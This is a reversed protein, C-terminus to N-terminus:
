FLVVFGHQQNLVFQFEHHKILLISQRHYLSLYLRTQKWSSCWEDPPLADRLNSLNELPNQQSMQFPKIEKYTRTQRPQRNINWVKSIFKKIIRICIKIKLLVDHLTYAKDRMSLDDYTQTTGVTKSRKFLRPEQPKLFKTLESM